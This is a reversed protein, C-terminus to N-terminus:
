SLIDDLKIDKAKIEKKRDLKEVFKSIKRWFELNVSQFHIIYRDGIDEHHKIDELFFTKNMIGGPYYDAVYVRNGSSFSIMRISTIDDGRYNDMKM